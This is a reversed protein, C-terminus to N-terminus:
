DYIKRDMETKIVDKQFSCDCRDTWQHLKGTVKCKLMTSGKDIDYTNCAMCIDRCNRNTTTANINM